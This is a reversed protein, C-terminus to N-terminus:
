RHAWMEAARGYQGQAFLLQEVSYACALPAAHTDGHKDGMCTFKGCASYREAWPQRMPVTLFHM